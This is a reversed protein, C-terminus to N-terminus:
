VLNHSTLIPRGHLKNKPPANLISLFVRTIREKNALELRVRNIWIGEVFVEEPKERTYVLVEGGSNDM